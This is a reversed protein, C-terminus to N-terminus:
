SWEERVSRLHENKGAAVVLTSIIGSCVKLFPSPSTQELQSSICELESTDCCRLLPGDWIESTQQQAQVSQRASPKGRGAPRHGSSPRAIRTPRDLLPLQRAQLVPRKSRQHHRGRS